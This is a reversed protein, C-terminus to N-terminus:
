DNKVKAIYINADEKHTLYNSYGVIILHNDPSIAVGGLYHSNGGGVSKEWIKKGTVDFKAVYIEQDGKYNSNEQTAAFLINGSNDTTVAAAAVDDDSKVSTITQMLTGKEDTILLFAKHKETQSYTIGAIAYGGNNLTAVSKANAKKSLPFNKEWLLKGNKDIKILAVQTEGIIGAEGTVVFGDDQTKAISWVEIPLDLDYEKEWLIKGKANMKAVWLAKDPYEKWVQGVLYYNGKDAAIIGAM